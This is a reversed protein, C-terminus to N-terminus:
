LCCCFINIGTLITSFKSLGSFNM